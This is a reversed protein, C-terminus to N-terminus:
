AGPRTNYRLFRELGKGGGRSMAKFLKQAERFQKLLRNIEQVETGSGRAIRRKRSGNLVEPTRRELPTMSLLIAEFRKM